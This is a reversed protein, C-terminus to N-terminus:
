VMKDLNRRFSALVEAGLNKPHFLIREPTAIERTRKKEMYKLQLKYIVTELWDFLFTTKRSPSGGPHLPLNVNPLWRNIWKNEALFRQHLPGKEWLPRSQIVEHATYLNQENPPIKLTTEALFINPCVRDRIKGPPRVRVGMLDFFLTSFLRTLWVRKECAVVLVDLDSDPEVNEVALAGTVFVGRVWPIFPLFRTYTAARKLKAQSVVKRRERTELVKERGALFYYSGTKGLMKKVVLRELAKNVAALSSKRELLFQWVEEVKLPYDFLDRYVLTKLVARETLSFKKKGM